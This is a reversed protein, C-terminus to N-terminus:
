KYLILATKGADVAQIKQVLPHSFDYRVMDRLATGQSYGHIVLVERYNFGRAARVVAQAIYMKAPPVHMGHIDIVLSFGQRKESHKRM